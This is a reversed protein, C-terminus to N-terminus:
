SMGAPPVSPEEDKVDIHAGNDFANALALRVCKEASERTDVFERVQNEYLPHKGVHTSMDTDMAGPSYNLVKLGDLNKQELALVRPDRRHISRPYVLLGDSEVIFYEHRLLHLACHVLEGM